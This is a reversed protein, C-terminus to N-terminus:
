SIIITHVVAIYLSKPTLIEKVLSSGLTIDFAVMMRITYYYCNLFHMIFSCLVVIIDTEGPSLLRLRSINQMKCFDDQDWEWSYPKFVSAKIFICVVVDMNFIDLKSYNVSHLNSNFVISSRQGFLTM